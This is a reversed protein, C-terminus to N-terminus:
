LYPDIKLRVCDANNPEDNPEGSHWNTYAPESGNSEFRWVGEEELDTLGTWFHRDRFGMRNIQEVIQDNEEESNIEILGAGIIRCTENAEFWTM